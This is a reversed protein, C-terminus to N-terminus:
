QMLMCSRNDAHLAIFTTIQFVTLLSVRIWEEVRSGSSPVRQSAIRKLAKRSLEEDVAPDHSKGSGDSDSAYEEPVTEPREVRAPPVM